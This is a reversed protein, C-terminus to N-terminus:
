ALKAARLVFSASKLLSLIYQKADNVGFAINFIHAPAIAMCNAFRRLLLNQQTMSLARTM